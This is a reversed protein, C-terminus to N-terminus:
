SRQKARAKDLFIDDAEEMSDPDLNISSGFKAKLTLKLGDMKSQVRKAESILARLAEAEAGKSEEVFEEAEENSVEVFMEGNRIKCADDDLLAEIDESADNISAVLKEQDKIQDELELRMQHLRNFENIRQQDEWTVEPDSSESKRTKSVSAKPAFLKKQAKLVQKEMWEDLDKRQPYKERLKGGKEWEAIKQQKWKQVRGKNARDM